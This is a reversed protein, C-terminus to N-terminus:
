AAPPDAQRWARAFWQRIPLRFGPLLDGGTLTDAATLVRCETPSTYVRVTQPEPDVYWVLRTGTRFYEELKGAMEAETNGESLVEVALDPVLDPVRQAPRQRNPFQQWSFFAVDPIRVLGPALRVAGDPGAVVGLNHRELFRELLYILVAALRAEYFGMVKEVLTGEVLELLRKEGGPRPLLDAETATGPPPQCRIRSLPVGGLRAHLDAFTECPATAPSPAAPSEAATITM